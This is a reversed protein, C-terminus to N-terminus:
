KNPFQLCLQLSCLMPYHKRLEMRTTRLQELIPRASFVEEPLEITVKTMAVTSASFKSDSSLLIRM